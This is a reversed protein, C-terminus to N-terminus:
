PRTGRSGDDGPDGTPPRPPVPPVPPQQVAADLPGGQAGPRTGRPDTGYPDTAPRDTAPRDTGYPDTGYPDGTTSGYPAPAGGAATGYPGAAHGPAASRGGAYPDIGYGDAGYGYAPSGAGGGATGYPDDPGTDRVTAAAPYAAQQRPIGLLGGAVPATADEGDEGALRGIGRALRAAADEWHAAAADWMETARRMGDIAQGTRDASAVMAQSANDTAEVAQGSLGVLQQQVTTLEKLTTDIVAGVRVMHEGVERVATANDQGTRATADQATRVADLATTQAARLVDASDRVAAEIRGAAAGLSPMEGTLRDTAAVLGTAASETATAAQVLKNHSRAARDTLSKLQGAASSLEATFRQPSARKHSVLALQVRTLVSMLGALLLEDEAEAAALEHEARRRALAHWVALLVLVTILGVAMLAVTDFREFSSLHGDFGSQWLQLFPRTAEKPDQSALEDYASSARSLGLWTVLLPVFVMIGLAAELPEDRIRRVASWLTDWSLGKVSKVSRGGAGARGPASRTGCLSEPRAFAQVLDIEAWVDLNDGAALDDALSELEEKRESLQQKQALKKLQGALKAANVISSLPV